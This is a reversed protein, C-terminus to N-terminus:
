AYAGDEILFQVRRSQWLDRHLVGVIHMLTGNNALLACGLDSDASRFAIAKLRAGSNGVLLCHVHGLGVIKSQIVRVNTLVFRPEPNGSGFPGLQRLLDVLSLTAGAPDLAGEVYLEPTLCVTPVLRELLFSRFAQLHALPVTFGAAMAHGGGSELLGAARAALVAAGLDVGPVSRGSGKAVNGELSFVCAPRHYREKLRGAIIGIVGPHWHWGAVFILPVQLAPCADIQQLAKLLIDNEIKQRRQNYSDLLWAISLAERPDHTSLLRAGLDAQGVRGGANVRPGLLFGLHWSEPRDHLGAVKTLAKLGENSRKAMVKLGQTVLARNVGILPVMDCVTGLAVLDLWRMLDPSPQGAATYWLSKQLIRHTAVAVMFAVGVAALYGYPSTEDARNPNVIAVARPLQVEAKHHDVVIIDLGAKMALALPQFASTGCDVMLVLSAGISQLKLLAKANPGYGENLRHPVYLVTQGGAADIFRKMLAAATAGDVDYDGFVAVTEKRMIAVALREAASKMDKLHFPDPFSYLLKPTIYSEVTDPSVGRRVLVQAIMDPLGTRQCLALTAREDAAACLWYRGNLSCTVGLFPAPDRVEHLNPDAGDMMPRAFYHRAQVINDCSKLHVALSHTLAVSACFRVSKLRVSETVTITAFM